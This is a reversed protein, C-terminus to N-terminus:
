NYGDDLCCSSLFYGNGIEETVYQKGIAQNQCLKMKKLSRTFSRLVTLPSKKKKSGRKSDQPNNSRDSYNPEIICTLNSVSKASTFTRSGHKPPKM